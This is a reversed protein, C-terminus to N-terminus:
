RKAMGGRETPSLSTRLRPTIFDLFARTKMPLRGRGAYVVSVPVGVPEHDVLLRVLSNSRFADAVQYSLVRTVGAGALAAAIAGDATNVTLRLHVDVRVTGDPGAFSWTSSSSLGEFSVCRHHRLEELSAPTGFRDLYVPSACVVRTIEGLRTAVLGSDSLVGIRLAVDIHDEILNANRDSLLLRVNVDPYRELFDAVLPAMHMRGFVLPAAVVLEGKASAYAGAADREAEDIRELIDRCAALYDRGAETLAISRTSRTLLRTGLHAELDTLKRSVTALPMALKRGAASLSGEDVAAIFVTMADLRDM